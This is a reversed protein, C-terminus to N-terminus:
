STNWFGTSAGRSPINSAFYYIEQEVKNVRALLKYTAIILRAIAAIRIAQIARLVGAHLLLLLNGEELLEVRVLVGKLARVGCSAFPAYHL